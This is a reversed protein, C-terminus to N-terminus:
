PTMWPDSPVNGGRSSRIDELRSDRARPKSLEPPFPEGISFLVGANDYWVGSRLLPVTVRGQM